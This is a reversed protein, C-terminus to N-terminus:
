ELEEPTPPQFMRAWLDLLSLDVRFRSDPPLSENRLALRRLLEERPVDLYILRTEAGLEAARARFQSREERSWFGSELIVDVGLSLARQAIDWHLSEIAARKDEDYGTGLIRGMWEDPTLRLAPREREIRKAL